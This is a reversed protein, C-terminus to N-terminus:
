ASSQGGMHKKGLLLRCALYPRSQLEATHGEARAGEYFVTGRGGALVAPPSDTANRRYNNAAVALSIALGAWILFAVCLSRFLTTSPFLTSRPPRRIM